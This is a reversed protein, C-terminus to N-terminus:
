KILGRALDSLTNILLSQILVLLFIAVIPVIDIRSFQLSRPLYRRVQAFLPDTARRLFVVIPNYPDAGVWSIIIAGAIIFTYINAALNLLKAVALILYGILSM